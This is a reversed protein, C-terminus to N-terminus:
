PRSAGGSEARDRALTELAARGRRARRGYLTLGLAFVAALATRVVESLTM